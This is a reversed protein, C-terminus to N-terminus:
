PMAPLSGVGSRSIPRWSPMVGSRTRWISDRASPRSPRMRSSAASRSAAQGRRREGADRRAGASCPRPGKSGRRLCEEALAPRAAEPREPLAGLAAAVRSLGALDVSSRELCLRGLWRVAAREYQSPESRLIVLLVAAAEAVGIRPLEAAAARIVNLNGTALARQFRAYPSGSSTMSRINAHAGSPACPARRAWGDARRHPSRSRLSPWGRAPAPPLMSVGFAAVGAGRGAAAMAFAITYGDELPVGTGAPTRASVIAAAIQAGVAAGATRMITNM